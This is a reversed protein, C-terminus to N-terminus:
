ASACHFDSRRLDAAAAGPVGPVDSPVSRPATACLEAGDYTACGGRHRTVGHWRGGARSRQPQRCGRARHDCRAARRCVGGAFALDPRPQSRLARPRSRPPHPPDPLFVIQERRPAGRLPVGVRMGPRDDGVPDILDPPPPSIARVTAVRFAAREIMAQVPGDAGM